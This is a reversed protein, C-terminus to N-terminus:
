FSAKMIMGLKLARNQNMKGLLPESTQHQMTGLQEEKPFCSPLSPRRKEFEERQSFGDTPKGQSSINSWRLPQQVLQNNLKFNTVLRAM